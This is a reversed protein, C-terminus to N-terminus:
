KIFPVYHLLFYMESNIDENMENTITLNGLFPRFYYLQFKKGEKVIRYSLNLGECVGDETDLDWLHKTSSLRGDALSYTVTMRSFCGIFPIRFESNSMSHVNSKSKIYSDAYFPKDHQNLWSEPLSGKPFYFACLTFFIVYIINDRRHIDGDVGNINWFKNRFYQMVTM